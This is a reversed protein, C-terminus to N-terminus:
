NAFTGSGSARAGGSIGGGGEEEEEVEPADRADGDRADVSSDM